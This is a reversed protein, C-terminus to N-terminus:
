STQKDGINQRLFQKGLYSTAMSTLNKRSGVNHRIYGCLNAGGPVVGMIVVVLWKIEQSTAKRSEFVWHSKGVEDTHNWLRLGVMLRGTVNKEAGFDCSLVLLITIRRATVSSSLLECLLSYYVIITSVRFFFHFFSAGPHRIRGRNPRNATVEEADFLSVDEADDNSDQQLLAGWSIIDDESEELCKLVRQVEKAVGPPLIAAATQVACRYMLCSTYQNIHQTVEVLKLKTKPRRGGQPRNWRVRATADVLQLSNEAAGLEM